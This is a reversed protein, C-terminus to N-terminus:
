AIVVDVGAEELHAADETAIGQDTVLVLEGSVVIVVEDNTKHWHRQTSWSGPALEVRNRGQRKAEYLALDATHLLAEPTNVEDCSCSVGVSVSLLSLGM